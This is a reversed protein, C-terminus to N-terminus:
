DKNEITPETNSTTSLKTQEVTRILKNIAKKLSKIEKVLEDFKDEDITSNQKAPPQPVSFQPLQFGGTQLPAQYTQTPQTALPTILETPDGWITNGESDVGKPIKHLPASPINKLDTPMDYGFPLAPQPPQYQPIQGGNEAFSRWDRLILKKPDAQLQRDPLIGGLHRPDNGALRHQFYTKAQQAVGAALMADEYEEQTM